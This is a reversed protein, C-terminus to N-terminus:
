KFENSNGKVFNYSRITLFLSLFLVILWFLAIRTRSQQKDYKKVMEAHSFLIGSPASLEYCLAGNMFRQQYFRLTVEQGKLASLAMDDESDKVKFCNHRTGRNERCDCTTVTQDGSKVRLAHSPYRTHYSRDPGIFVGQVVNLDNKSPSKYFTMPLGHSVALLIELVLCILLIGIWYPSIVYKIFKLVRKM